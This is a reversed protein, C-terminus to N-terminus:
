KSEPPTLSETSLVVGTPTVAEVSMPGLKSFDVFQAANIKRSLEAALSLEEVDLGRACYDKVIEKLYELLPDSLTVIM